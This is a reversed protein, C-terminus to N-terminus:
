EYTLDHKSDFEDDDLKIQPHGEIKNVAENIEEIKRKLQAVARGGGRKGDFQISLHHATIYKPTM